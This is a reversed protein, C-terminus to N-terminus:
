KVKPAHDWLKDLQYFDRTEHYFMHVIVDGYDALVWTGEGRGEVHVPKVGHKKMGVVLEESLADVHRTSTGSCIIFYDTITNCERLDLIVIDDAKKDDLVARMM